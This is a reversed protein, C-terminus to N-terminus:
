GGAPTATVVDKGSADTGVSIEVLKGSPGHLYLHDTIILTDIQMGGTQSEAVGVDSHAAPESWAMFSALLSAALVLGTAVGVM